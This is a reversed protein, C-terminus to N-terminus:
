GGSSGESSTPGTLGAPPPEGAPQYAYRFTVCGPQAGPCYYALFQLKAHLGDATRIAFVRPHPLLLHSLMSYSYWETAVVNVTDSRVRNVVYGEAPVAEVADFSVDGLDLMGGVGAFGDGGNVIVEFRRFALDWDLPGPPSSVLTGQELSFFQWEEPKRADVTFQRPGSQEWPTAPRADLPTPAYTPPEVRNLGMVVFTMMAAVVLTAIAIVGILGRDRQWDITVGM